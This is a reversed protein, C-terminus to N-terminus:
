LPLPDLQRALDSLDDFCYGDSSVTISALSDMDSMLDDVWSGGEKTGLEQISATCKSLHHHDEGWRSLMSMPQVSSAEAVLSTACKLLHDAGLHPAMLVPMPLASTGEAAHFFRISDQPVSISCPHVETEDSLGVISTTPQGPGDDVFERFADGLWDDEDGDDDTLEIVFDDASPTREYEVDDDDQSPLQVVSSCNPQGFISPESAMFKM